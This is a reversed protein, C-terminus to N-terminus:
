SLKEQNKIYHYVMIGVLATGILTYTILQSMESHKPEIAKLAGSLEKAQNILVPQNM